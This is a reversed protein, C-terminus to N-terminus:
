DMLRFRLPRKELVGETLSLGSMVGGELRLSVIKLHVVIISVVRDHMSQLYRTKRMAGGFLLMRLCMFFLFVRCVLGMLHSFVIRHVVIEM